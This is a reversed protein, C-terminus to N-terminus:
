GLHDARPRATGGKRAVFLCQYTETARLAADPDLGLRTAADALVRCAESPIKLPTRETVEYGCDELLAHFSDPSFFRLHTRDLLGSDEYMFQGRLLGTVVSWHCVNPVNAVLMASPALHAWLRQLLGGPDRLHELVDGFLACDFHGRPFPLPRMAEVDGTLVNTIRRRAESAADEDLEVGWVERGPVRTLLVEGLLGKACGVDLIRHATDPVREAM